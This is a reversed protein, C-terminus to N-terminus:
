VMVLIKLHSCVSTSAVVVPLASRLKGIIVAASLACDNRLALRRLARSSGLEVLVLPPDRSCVSTSAVMVPLASRLKGIVVTASLARDNRPALRRLARSSGLEILVLPPDRSCM